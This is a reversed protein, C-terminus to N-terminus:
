RLVIQQYIYILLASENTIRTCESSNIFQLSYISNIQKYRKTVYDDVDKRIDLNIDGM